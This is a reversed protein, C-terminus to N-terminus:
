HGNSLVSGQGHRRAERIVCFGVRIVLRAYLFRIEGDRCQRMESQLPEQQLFRRSESWTRPSPLHLNRIVPCPQWRFSESLQTDVRPERVPPNAPPAM